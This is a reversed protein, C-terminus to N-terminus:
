SDHSITGDSNLKQVLEKAYELRIRQNAIMQQAIRGVDQSAAGAAVALQRAHMRMHGAQIGDTALARIAALNQALGVAAVIESLQQASSIDLIRLALQAVPHVRTAGGVIGVALPVDIRGRLNGDEDQWWKTMSTYRGDRAAYAHAGAEVARWDNGTALIVADIGNMIGKNHTAARYPDVEAFVAAEVIAQVVEEGTMEGRALESAPIMGEAHAKRRDTLNSLIRLNVRGSTLAEIDPAIHEVATNIINAGMADRTDILLHVILMNGVSTNPYQFVEIDRSGGGYKLISGGVEDAKALLMQKNALVQQEATDLNEIDLVQIQGIMVPDDSSTIFGGGERFLRAANSVAAVVSPEEIVMPILYDRDNIRFNTAIGLPLSFIGIANEIMNAADEVSLGAVGSLTDSASSSLDTWEILTSLREQWSKKYYGSLRSSKENM